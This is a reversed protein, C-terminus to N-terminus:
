VLKPSELRGNDYKKSQFEVIVSTVLCFVSISVKIFELVDLLVFLM